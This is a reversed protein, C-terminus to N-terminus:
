ASWEKRLQAVTGEYSNCDLRGKSDGPIGNVTRPPPGATGDTYQWLWYTSWSKQVKPVPGYQCLWLRHGGFFTDKKSGLREKILAGSYILARRGLKAQIATLFDRAQDLRMTRNGDPEFDLAVLTDEDPEAHKLFNTLQREVDGNTGWHYAGWLLGAESALKRRAKYAPDRGTMGTTAKHIVGVIGSERATKFSTVRDGHYIDVVSLNPMASFVAGLIWNIRVFSLDIVSFDALSNEHSAGRELTRHLLVTSGCHLPM